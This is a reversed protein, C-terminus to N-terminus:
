QGLCTLDCPLNFLSQAQQALCQFDDVPCALPPECRLPVPVFALQKQTLPMELGGLFQIAFGKADGLLLLGLEPFQAGGRAEGPEAAVLAAAGFGEVKEGGNIAPEGLPEVRGIQFLRLRQQLLQPSVKSAPRDSEDVTAIWYSASLM